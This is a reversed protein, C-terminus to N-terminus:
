DDVWKYYGRRACAVFPRPVPHLWKSTMAQSLVLRFRPLARNNGNSLLELDGPKLQVLMGMWHFLWSSHFEADPRVGLCQKLEDKHQLILDRWDNVTHYNKGVPKVPEVLQLAQQVSRPESAHLYEEHREMADTIVRHIYDYINEHPLNQSDM